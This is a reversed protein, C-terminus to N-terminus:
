LASSRVLFLNCLIAHDKLAMRVFIVTPRHDTVLEPSFTMTIRRVAVDLLSKPMCLSYSQMEATTEKHNKFKRPLVIGQDILHVHYGM